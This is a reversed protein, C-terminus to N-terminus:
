DKEILINDRGTDLLSTLELQQSVAHNIIEKQQEITLCAMSEVTGKGITGYNIFDSFASRALRNTWYDEESSRHFEPDNLLDVTKEVGGLETNVINTLTKLFFEAESVLQSKHVIKRNVEFGFRRVEIHKLKKDVGELQDMEQEAKLKRLEVEELDLELNAITELRAKAEVLSQRLRRYPTISDNIVFKEMQFVSMGNSILPELQLFLEINM